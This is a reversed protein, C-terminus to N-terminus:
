DIECDIGEARLERRLDKLGRYVLHRTKPESWGLNHAIEQTTLGELYLVVVSQRNDALRAFVARVREIMLRREAIRDPADERNAVLTIAGVDNDEEILRMQEERRAKVRRVADITATAAVRYIYSAPDTIEIGGELARWLRLRADQEIDGYQLGMDKPCLRAIVNRLYRGYEDLLINLRAETALVSSSETM